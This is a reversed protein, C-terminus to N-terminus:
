SPIETRLIVLIRLKTCLKPINELAKGNILLNINQTTLHGTGTIARVIGNSDIWVQHPVLFNPFLHNFITDKTVYPISVDKLLQEGLVKDIRQKSERFVLIIQLRPKFKAQISDFNKFSSYSESCWTSWFILIVAKGKLDAMNAEKGADNEIGKIKVNPCMEGIAVQAKSPFPFATLFIIAGIFCYSLPGHKMALYKRRQIIFLWTGVRINM